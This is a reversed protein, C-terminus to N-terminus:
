IMSFKIKQKGLGGQTFGMFLFEVIGSNFEDLVENEEAYDMIAEANSNDQAKDLMLPLVFKVLESLKDNFEM